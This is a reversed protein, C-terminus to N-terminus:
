ISHLITWTEPFNRLFYFKHRLCFLFLFLALSDFQKRILEVLDITTWLWCLVSCSYPCSCLYQIRHFTLTFCIWQQSSRHDTSPNHSDGKLLSSEFGYMLMWGTVWVSLGVLWVASYYELTSPQVTEVRLIKQRISSLKVWTRSSPLDPMIDVHVKRHRCNTPM